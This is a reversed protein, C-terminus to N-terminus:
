ESRRKGLKRAPLVSQSFLYPRSTTQARSDSADVIAILIEDSLSSVRGQYLIGTTDYHCPIYFLGLQLPSLNM